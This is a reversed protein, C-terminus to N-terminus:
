SLKAPLKNNIENKRKLIGLLNDKNKKQSTKRFKEFFEPFLRNKIEFRKKRDYYDSKKLLEDALNQSNLRYIINFNFRAM